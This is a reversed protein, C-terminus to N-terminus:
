YLVTEQTLTSWKNYLKETFSVHFAQLIQHFGDIIQGVTYLQQKWVFLDFILSYQVSTNSHFHGKSHMSEPCSRHVQGQRLSYPHAHCVSWGVTSTCLNQATVHKLVHHKNVLLRQCVEALARDATRPPGYPLLIPTLPITGAAKERAGLSYLERLGPSLHWMPFYFATQVAVAAHWDRLMMQLLAHNNTEPGETLEVNLGSPFSISPHPSSHSSLTQKAYNHLNM